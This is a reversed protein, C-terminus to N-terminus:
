LIPVEKNELPNTVGFFLFVILHIFLIDVQVGDQNSTHCQYSCKKLSLKVVLFPSDVNVSCFVYIVVKVIKNDSTISTTFFLFM